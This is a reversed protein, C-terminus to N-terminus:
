RSASHRRLPSNALLFRARESIGFKGVMSALEEELAVIHSSLIGEGDNSSANALPLSEPLDTLQPLWNLTGGSTEEVGAVGYTALAACEIVLFPELMKRIRLLDARLNTASGAYEVLWSGPLLQGRNKGVRALHSAIETQDPAAASPKETFVFFPM